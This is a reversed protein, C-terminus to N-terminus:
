LLSPLNLEETPCKVGNGRNNTLHLYVSTTELSGHGLWRRLTDLDAGAELMHTAFCHRLTHIGHGHTIGARDRAQNYIRQASAISYHQGPIQGSFMWPEEPRYARYYTRLETLERPTLKTYRDKNGKAQEVRIQMRDSSIETPKLKVVESVRLGSGYVTLLLTRHKLNTVSCLLRQVEQISFIEPRQKQTRRAPLHFRKEDWQLFGQYFSRMAAFAINCSSYALGCEKTLHVLYAQIQENTLLDPSCHYHAALRAINSIYATQTNEALNRLILYDHFKKRLVTGKSNMKTAEQFLYSQHGTSPCRKLEPPM